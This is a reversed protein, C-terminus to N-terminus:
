PLEDPLIGPVHESPVPEDSPPNRILAVLMELAQLMIAFTALPIIWDLWWQPFVLDKFVLTEAQYSRVMLMTAVACTIACIAIIITLVGCEVFRATARDMRAILLDVRIHENTRLLYPAIFFTSMFLAYETLEVLGKISSYGLMRLIVEASIGVMMAAILLIALVCLMRVLQANLWFVARM